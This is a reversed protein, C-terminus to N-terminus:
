GCAFTRDTTTQFREINVSGTGIPTETGDPLIRTVLVTSRGLPISAPVNDKHLQVYSNWGDATNPVKVGNVFLNYKLTALDVGTPTTWRYTAMWSPSTTPDCSLPTTTGSSMGNLSFTQAPDSPNCTVQEFTANAAVSGGTVAMCKGSNRAVFQYKEGGVAIISWQQNTGGNPAFLIIRATNTNSLAEVDWIIASSHKPVVTYYGAANPGNFSWQQNAAAPNSCSYQILPTFNATGAGSADVCLKSKTNVIQFWGTPASVALTKVTAKPTAPSLHAAGDKAVVTYSYSTSAALGTIIFSTAGTTSGILTADRYIDYGTVGVDDTAATWNLTTSTSTTGSFALRTPASPPADVFSQTVASQAVSTWSSRSLTTTFTATVATDSTIGVPTALTTKVCYFQAAGAALTGTLPALTAWTGRVPAVPTVCGATVTSKWIEVSVGRALQTSGTAVTTTTYSADITGTNTVTLGGTKETVGASFTVTPPDTLASGATISAAEVIVPAQQTTETWLAYSGSASGTTLLALIAVVIGAALLSATGKTSRARRIRSPRGPAPAPTPM